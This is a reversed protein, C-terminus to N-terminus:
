IICWWFSWEFELDECIAEVSAPPIVLGQSFDPFSLHAEHLLTREQQLKAPNPRASSLQLPGVVTWFWTSPSFQGLRLCPSGEVKPDKLLVWYFVRRVLGLYPSPIIQWGPPSLVHATRNRLLVVPHVIPDNWPCGQWDTAAALAEVKLLQLRNHFRDRSSDWHVSSLFEATGSIAAAFCPEGAQLHQSLPSLFQQICSTSIGGTQGL